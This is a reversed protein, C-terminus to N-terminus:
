SVNTGGQNHCANTTADRINTLRQLEANYNANTEATLSNRTNLLNTTAQAILSNILALETNYLTISSNVSAGYTSINVMTLLDREAVTIDGNAFSTAITNATTNFITLYDNLRTNHNTLASAELGARQGEILPLQSDYQDQILQLQATLISDIEAQGENFADIAAQRCDDFTDQILFFQINQVFQFEYNEEHQRRNLFSLRGANSILNGAAAALQPVLSTLTPSSLFSTIADNVQSIATADGNQLATLISAQTQGAWYAQQGASFATNAASAVSSATAPTSISTSLTTYGNVNISGPTINVSESRLSATDVDPLSADFDYTYEFEPVPGLKTCAIALGLGLIIAAFTIKKFLQM